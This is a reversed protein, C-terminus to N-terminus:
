ARTLWAATAAWWGAGAFAWTVLLHMTALVAVGTLWAPHVKGVKRWDLAIVALLMLEIVLFSGQNASGALGAPIFMRGIAPQTIMIFAALMLRQHYDRRTRNILAMAVLVAEALIGIVPLAMFVKPDPSAPPAHGLRAATIATSLGLVVMAGFLMAGLMGLQRHLRPRGVGILTAQTVFLLTWLTFVAGHAMTLPSLPPPAHIVDKLYYSPAFGVFIVAACILATAVYLQNQSGASPRVEIAQQAM